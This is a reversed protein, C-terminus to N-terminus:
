VLVPCPCSPENSQCGQSPICADVTQCAGAASPGPGTPKPPCCSTYMVSRCYDSWSLGGTISSLNSVSTKSLKLKQTKM